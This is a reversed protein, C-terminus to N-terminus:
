ADLWHSIEDLITTTVSESDLVTQTMETLKEDSVDSLDEGREELFRRITSVDLNFTFSNLGNAVLNGTYQEVSLDNKLATERITQYQDETVKINIEPM